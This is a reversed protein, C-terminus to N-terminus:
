RPQGKERSDRGGLDNQEGGTEMLAARLATLADLVLSRVALQRGIVGLQGNDYPHVAERAMVSARELQADTWPSSDLLVEAASIRVPAPGVASVVIRIDRPVGEDLTAAVAVDVEPFDMTARDRWKRFVGAPSVRPLRVARVFEQPGLTLHDHGDGSYLAEVEVWRLEPGGVAVEAGLAILVPATDSSLIAVCERSKPAAYCRNGDSKFCPDLGSRWIPPQNRFRCRTDVCLNGGLTAQARIEPTAVAHVAAVLMPYHAGLVPHHLIDSLTVAAGIVWRGEADITIERLESIGMVDVLMTPSALEWTLNPVLDTGGALIQAGLTGLSSPLDVWNELRTIYFSPRSSM